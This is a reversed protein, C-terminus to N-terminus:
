RGDTVPQATQWVREFSEVARAPVGHDSARRFHYVPSDGAATGWLHTNILLEDDFRFISAYLTQGSVRVAGPDVDVIGQAYSAALRCRAALSDGIGEERGREAVAASDPDGLCIRARAGQAIKVQVTEVFGPVTDWLWLAAYALVDIRERAADLLSAVTAPSLERRTNYIGVLESTGYAVGPAQPWLVAEPVGLLGALQKRVAPRPLRGTSVWRSVTKPDTGVTDAIDDIRKGTQRIADHLRQNRSM